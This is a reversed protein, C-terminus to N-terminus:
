TLSAAGQQVSIADIVSSCQHVSLGVAEIGHLHAQYADHCFVLLSRPQLLVSAAVDQADGTYLCYQM